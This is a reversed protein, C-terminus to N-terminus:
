VVKTETDALEVPDAAKDLSFKGYFLGQAPQKMVIFNGVSTVNAFLEIACPRQLEEVNVKIQAFYRTVEVNERKRVQPRAAGTAYYKNIFATADRQ